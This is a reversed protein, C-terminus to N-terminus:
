RRLKEVGKKRFGQADVDVRYTAPTILDFVYNGTDGSKTKRITNTQTNTLTVAANPVVNGSPDTITGRITSTGTQSWSLSAALILPLLAVSRLSRM